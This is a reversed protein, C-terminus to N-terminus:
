RAVAGLGERIGGAVSIGAKHLETAQASNM